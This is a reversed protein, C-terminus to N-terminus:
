LVNKAALDIDDRRITRRGAHTSLEKANQAIEVAIEELIEALAEKGTESVRLGTTDRIIRDMQALAIKSM